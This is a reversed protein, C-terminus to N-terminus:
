FRSLRVPGHSLKGLQCTDLVVVQVDVPDAHVDGEGTGDVSWGDQEDM